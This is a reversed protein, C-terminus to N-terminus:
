GMRLHLGSVIGEGTHRHAGVTECLGSEHHDGDAVTASVGVARFPIMIIAVAIEAVIAEGVPLRGDLLKRCTMLIDVHVTDADVAM